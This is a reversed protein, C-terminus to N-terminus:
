FEILARVDDVFFYEDLNDGPGNRDMVLFDQTEIGILLPHHWVNANYQVGQDGSLWFGVLNDPHPVEAGSVVVIWRADSLPMFAQSGLPHREMMKIEIPVTRRTGRFISLAATGDKGVQALARLHFRTTTGENIMFQEGDKAEILTGYPAFNDATIPQLDLTRIAM